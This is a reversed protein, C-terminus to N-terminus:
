ILQLQVLWMMVHPQNHELEATLHLDEKAWLMVIEKM